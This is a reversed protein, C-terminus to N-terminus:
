GSLAKGAEPAGDCGGRIVFGGAAARTGTARRRRDGNITTILALRVEAAPDHVARLLLARADPHHDAALQTVAEGRIAHFSRATTPM